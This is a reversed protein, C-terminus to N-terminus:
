LFYDLLRFTQNLMDQAKLIYPFYLQRDYKKRCVSVLYAGPGKQSPIHHVYIYSDGFETSIFAPQKEGRDMIQYSLALFAKLNAVVSIEDKISGAITHERSGDIYELLCMEVSERVLDNLIAVVMNKMADVLKTQFNFFVGKNTIPKSFDVQKHYTEYFLQLIKKALLDAVDGTLQFTHFVSCIIGTTPAVAVSIAGHSTEIYSMPLGVESRALEHVARILGGWKTQAGTEGGKEMSKEWIVIGSETM